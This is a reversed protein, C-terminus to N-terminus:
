DFEQNFGIVDNYYLTYIVISTLVIIKQRKILKAGNFYPNFYNYLLCAIVVFIINFYLSILYKTDYEYRIYM